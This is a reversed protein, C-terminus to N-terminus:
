VCTERAALTLGREKKKAALSAELPPLKMLAALPQRGGMVVNNQGRRPLTLDSPFDRAQASSKLRSSPDYGRFGGEQVHSAQAVGSKSTVYTQPGQTPNLNLDINKNQSNVIIKESHPRNEAQKKMLNKETKQRALIVSESTPRVQSMHSQTPAMYRRHLRRTRTSPRIDPREIPRSTVPEPNKPRAYALNSNNRKLPIQSTPSINDPRESRVTGTGNSTMTDTRMLHPEGPVTVTQYHSNNHSQEQRTHSNSPRKQVHQVHTQVPSNRPVQNNTFSSMHSGRTNNVNSNPAITLVETVDERTDMSIASSDVSNTEVTQQQPIFNSDCFAKARKSERKPQRTSAFRDYMLNNAGGRTLEEKTPPINEPETAVDAEMMVIKRESKPVSARGLRSKPRASKSPRQPQPEVVGNDGQVDGRDTEDRKKFQHRRVYSSKPRISLDRTDFNSTVNEDNIGDNMDNHFGFSTRARHRRFGRIERGENEDTKNEQMNTFNQIANHRSNIVETDQINVTNLSDGSDSSSDTLTDSDCIVKEEKIQDYERLLETDDAVSETTNDTLKDQDRLLRLIQDAKSQKFNQNIQSLLQTVDHGSTLESHSVAHHRELGLEAM